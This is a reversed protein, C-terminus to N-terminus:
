SFSRKIKKFKKKFELAKLWGLKKTHNINLKDMDIDTDMGKDRCTEMDRDTDEFNNMSFLM